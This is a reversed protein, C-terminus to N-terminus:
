ITDFYISGGIPTLNMGQIVEHGQIVVGPGWSYSNVTGINWDYFKWASNSNLTSLVTSYNSAAPDFTYSEINGMAKQYAYNDFLWAKFHVNYM